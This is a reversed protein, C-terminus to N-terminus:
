HQFEMADFAGGLIAAPVAVLLGAAMLGWLVLVIMRQHAILARIPPIGANGIRVQFGLVILVMLPIASFALGICLALMIALVAIQITRDHPLLGLGDLLNGGWGIALLAAFIIGTILAHSRLSLM